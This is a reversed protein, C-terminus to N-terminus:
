CNGRSEFCFEKFVAKWGIGNLGFYVSAVRDGIGSDGASLEYSENDDNRCAKV